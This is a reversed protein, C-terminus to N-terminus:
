EMDEGADDDGVVRGDDVEDAEQIKLKNFLYRMDIFGGITFWVTLVISMLLIFWIWGHWFSLWAQKSIGDDSTTHYLNGIIFVIFWILPWALTVVAIVTDRKTFERSFGLKQWLTTAEGYSVSEEGKIKYKGRHLMKDMNFAKKNELLSVAIYVTLSIVIAWFTIEQGTLFFNPNIIQKIIMGILSTVMGTIMAAWAALTTGKSWYLGGLIVTGAGATFVSASIACFMAIHQTHVFLLSVFFIYVAVFFIAGRLWWIHKEPSLPKNRFPLIVDQVLMSGWSHLYSDHTSVFAGLMAAVMLGLLVPPLFVGMAMPARAQNQLSEPISPYYDKLWGEPDNEKIKNIEEASTQLLFTRSDTDSINHKDIFSDVYKVKINEVKKHVPSAQQDYNPHTLFTRVCIPLVLVLIMMLVRFRWHSLMMGMKTEHANKACSFYGATGQWALPVYFAVVIGIVYYWKDFNKEKGLDFPNILSKGPETALLTDSIQGWNFTYLLYICLIAFVIYAWTGQIFDTVMVAIQGGLFTFVLSIGILVLMVVPYTSWTMGLVPFDSPLGCLWIFFRAGVSPFIGFNIIGALFAVIGAFIRFNRSYRMEFFQALTLARTQRFRYYAWGTIAMIIMVPGEMLGWWVSTFGVDYNQEFLWVLSIVGMMAMGMAVSILYRGGCREAALFASVSKTYRRTSLAGVTLIALLGIVIAWDITHMNM